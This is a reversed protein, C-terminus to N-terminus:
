RKPNPASTVAKNHVEDLAKAKAAVTEDLVGAEAAVTEDLVRAEAAVIEITSAQFFSRRSSSSPSSRSTSKNRGKDHGLSVASAVSFANSAHGTM